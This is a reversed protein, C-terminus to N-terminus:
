EGIEKVAEEHSVTPEGLLSRAEHLWGGPDNPDNWPGGPKGYLDVTKRIFDTKAENDKALRLLEAGAPHSVWDRKVWEASLGHHTLDLWRWLSMDGSEDPAYCYWSQCDPDDDWWPGYECGEHAPPRESM